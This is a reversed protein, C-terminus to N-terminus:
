NTRLYLSNLPSKTIQECEWMDFIAPAGFDWMELNIDKLMKYTESNLFMKLAEMYTYNYKEVIMKIIKKDYYDLFLAMYDKM